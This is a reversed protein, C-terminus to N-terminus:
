KCKFRPLPDKFSRPELLLNPLFIDQFSLVLEPDIMAEILKKTGKKKSSPAQCLTSIVLFRFDPERCTSASLVLKAVGPSASVKSSILGKNIPPKSALISDNNKGGTNHDAPNRCPLYYFVLTLNDM